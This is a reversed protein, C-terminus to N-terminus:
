DEIKNVVPYGNKALWECQERSRQSRIQWSRGQYEGNTLCVKKVEQLRQCSRKYLSEGKVEKSTQKEMEMDVEVTLYILIEDLCESFSGEAVCRWDGSEQNEELEDDFEDGDLKTVEEDEELLAGAEWDPSYAFIGEKYIKNSSGRSLAKIESLTNKKAM